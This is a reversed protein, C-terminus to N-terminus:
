WQRFVERERGGLAIWRAHECLSAGGAVNRGQAPDVPLGQDVTVLGEHGLEDQAFASDQGLMRVRVLLGAIQDTPADAERYAGIIVISLCAVTPADCTSNFVPRRGQFVRHGNFDERWNPLVIQRSRHLSRIGKERVSSRRRLLNKAGSGVGLRDAEPLSGSPGM